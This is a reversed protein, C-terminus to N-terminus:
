YDGHANIIVLVNKGELKASWLNAAMFPHAAGSYYYEPNNDYTRLM